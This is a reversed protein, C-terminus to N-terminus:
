CRLCTTHLSARQLFFIRLLGIVFPATNLQPPFVPLTPDQCAAAFDLFEDPFDDQCAVYERATLALVGFTSILILLSM